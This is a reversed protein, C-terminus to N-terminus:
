CHLASAMGQPSKALRAAAYGMRPRGPRRGSVGPYTFPAYREVRLPRVIGHRTQLAFAVAEDARPNRRVRGGSGCIERHHDIDPPHVYREGSTFCCEEDDVNARRSGGTDNGRGHARSRSRGRANAIYSGVQVYACAPKQARTRGTAIRSKQSSSSLAGARRDYLKRQTTLLFALERWCVQGDAM